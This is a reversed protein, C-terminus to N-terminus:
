HGLRVSPVTPWWRMWAIEPGRGGARLAASADRVMIGAHVHRVESREEGDVRGAPSALAALDLDGTAMAGGSPAAVVLAGGAARVLASHFMARLLVVALGALAM